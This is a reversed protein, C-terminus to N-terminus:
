LPINVHSPMSVDDVGTTGSIQGTEHDDNLGWCDVDGTAHLVCAHATGVAVQTADTVGMVAVPTGSCDYSGTGDTCNSHTGPGAGLTGHHNLGWCEATGDMLVACATNSGTSIQVATTIGTVQDPTNHDHTTDGNGLQGFIGTGWCWVSHDGRIACSYGDGVDVAIADDITQVQVATESCDYFVSGSTCRTHVGSGDGLEGSQNSGWCQIHGDMQLACTHGSMAVQSVNAVKVAPVATADVLADVVTYQAALTGNGNEGSSNSGFCGVTHDARVLCLDVFAPAISLAGMLNTDITATRRIMPESMGTPVTFAWGWCAYSGDPKLSCTSPCSHSKLSQADTLGAVSVPRSSCDATMGSELVCTEGHAPVGDGLEGWQNRGWCLVTGNERRACSHRYGATIEVIDCGTTCSPGADVGIGSDMGADTGADHGADHGADGARADAAADDTGADMMDGSDGCAALVLTAGVLGFFSFRM